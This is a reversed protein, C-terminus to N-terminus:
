TDCATFNGFNIYALAYVFEFMTRYSLRAENDGCQIFRRASIVSYPPMSFISKLNWITMAHSNYMRCGLLVYCETIATASSTTTM